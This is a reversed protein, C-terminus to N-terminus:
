KWASHGRLADSQSATQVMRPRPVSRICPGAGGAGVLSDLSPESDAWAGAKGPFLLDQVIM